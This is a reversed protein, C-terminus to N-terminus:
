RKCSCTRASTKLVNAQAFRNEENALSMLASNVPFFSVRDTWGLQLLNFGKVFTKSVHDYMRAMLEVEKSKCRELM